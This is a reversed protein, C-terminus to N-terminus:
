SGAVSASMPLPNQGEGLELTYGPRNFDQIFWDKYGGYSPGPSPRYVLVLPSCFKEVIWDVTM